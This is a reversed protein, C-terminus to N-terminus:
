HYVSSSRDTESPLFTEKMSEIGPKRWTEDPTNGFAILNHMNHYTQLYMYIEFSM